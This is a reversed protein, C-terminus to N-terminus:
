VNSLPIKVTIITGQNPKSDITLEGKLIRIREYITKLGLSNKKKANTIDFGKGNDQIVIVIDDNDKNVAISIAKAEAHKLCNNICEQIFRYCNLTQDENFYNDIKAIDGSIFLETQEDVDLILQEISETLGLQKLLPPYLGRSIARVEELTNHTLLTIDEQKTKQAKKKILTLQQSISDHLERAIRKRENEQSQILGQSFEQQLIKRQKAQYLLWLLFSIIAISVITFFWWTKYFFEKSNIKIFLSEGVKNGSFNEAEIELVYDGSALNPFQISNKNKLATWSRNDLRYKYTYGKDVANCYKLGFDIDLTRNESPLNITPNNDLNQRNFNNEFRKQKKNFHRVKLLTLSVSDNQTKLIEPDFYNLGGISGVFLGNETKLASFRNAEYHSFGDKESFRTKSKDKTNYAVYGNFTNIWWTDKDFLITAIGAKLEDKYLTTIKKSEPNFSYIIGSRSGLLYGYDKRYDSMLLYPDELTNKDNYFASKKSKFNYTLLGKSTAAIILNSNDLAHLDSIDLSDTNLLKSHEETKTNFQMLSYGNTGYVIISDNIKLPSISPYHKFSEITRTKRNIKLIGANGNSWITSDEIILNTSSTTFTKGNRTLKYPTVTNLIPNIKYWGKNETALLYNSSDLPKISRHEANPLYNKITKNPFKLYYLTGNTAIWVEKKLNKYAVKIGNTAKIELKHEEKLLNNKLTSITLLEETSSFILANGNADNVTNLHINPLSNNKVIELSKKAENIKYLNPNKYLFAYHINNLFFVEDITIKEQVRYTAAEVTDISKILTGDWKFVKTDFNDDSILIFDKFPTIRSSSEMLFKTESSTFNFLTSSSLNSDLKKLSITTGKQSLIYDKGDYSFIKSLGDLNSDQDELNVPKFGTTFPNFLLLKYGDNLMVVIYFQGDKRKYIQLVSLIPNKYDPLNINHFMNGNFRQLVLKRDSLIITRSDLNSGGIWLFGDNDYCISHINDIEVGDQKTFKKQHLMNSQAYSVVSFFFLLYLIGKNMYFLLSNTKKSLLVTFINLFFWSAM